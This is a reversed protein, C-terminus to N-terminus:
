GLVAGVAFVELIDLASAGFETSTIPNSGSVDIVWKILKIVLLVIALTSITSTSPNSAANTSYSSM